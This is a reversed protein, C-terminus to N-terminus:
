ARGATNRFHEVGELIGHAHRGRAVYCGRLDRREALGDSHNGVIIANPVSRLMEIDNGSDGAVIVRHADLALKRRVHEVATGKSAAFPLVDLYRGHSQIITCTLGRADLERRLRAAAGPDGGIMYSLKFRRQELASQPALGVDRAIVERIAERDWGRAVVLDWDADREYVGGPRRHYIESGVSSIVIAPLPAQQQALISLASHFSRGTAVAFVLDPEAAQWRKFAALGEDCGLLTGDIDSVLLGGIPRCPGAIVPRSAAVVDALLGAYAAAHADWDYHAVADRGAAAYRDWTADDSLISLIADGIAGSARPDVLVGNGCREVIDNPGGSDTAIVPLGSAAAELLTLGFPENLAPNVFVGRRTRAYAYIAPVDGPRHSKPLAVKGYLDYRDILVLLEALNDAIEPELTRLDDRTGAVIVLNAMSRLAPSRGYATVLGALNKRTVPRAIALIAPKLPEDLFRDLMAEVHLDPAVDTFAALDSGPPIIRVRGPDYADYLPYQIEAEDRSSAIIAAAGGMACNEIAIRRDLGDPAARDGAFAARKVEGLSHATFVYPIGLREGVDRALVGADAYHAHIVDPRRDLREIHGVLADRLSAHEQWLREKALYGPDSGRLRVIRTRDDVIEVPEDYCPSLGPDSFARTVIEIRDFAPHHASAGVLDMVYRIHGGTDATVGYEVDSARMCGQLAIHLVFM